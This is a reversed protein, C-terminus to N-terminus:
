LELACGSCYRCIKVVAAAQEVPEGSQRVAEIEERIKSEINPELDTKLLAARLINRSPFPLSEEYKQVAALPRNRLWRLFIDRLIHIRLDDSEVKQAADFLREAIRGATKIEGAETLITEVRMLVAISETRNECKEALDLVRRVANRADTKRGASYFISASGLYARIRADPSWGDSSALKESAFDACNEMESKWLEPFGKKRAPAYDGLPELIAAPHLKGQLFPFIVGWPLIGNRLLVPLLRNRLLFSDGSDDLSNWLGTLHRHAQETVSNEATGKQRWKAWLRFQGEASEIKELLIPDPEPSNEATLVRRLIKEYSGLDDLQEACTLALERQASDDAATIGRIFLATQYEEDNEIRSLVADIRDAPLINGRIIEAAALRYLYDREGGTPLAAIEDLLAEAFDAPNLNRRRVPELLRIKLNIQEEPEEISRIAALAEELFPNNTM